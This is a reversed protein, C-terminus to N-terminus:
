KSGTRILRKIKKTCKVQGNLIDLLFAELDYSTTWSFNLLQHLLPEIVNDERSRGTDSLQNALSGVFM